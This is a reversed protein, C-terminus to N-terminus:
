YRVNFVGAEGAPDSLGRRNKNITTNSEFIVLSTILYSLIGSLM